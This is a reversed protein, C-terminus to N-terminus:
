TFWVRQHDRSMPHLLLIFQAVPFLALMIFNVDVMVGPGETLIWALFPYLGLATVGVALRYGWRRENAIGLGGLVMLASALLNILPGWYIAYVTGGLLLGLVARVYLLITALYLTQPQHPNTWRRLEM